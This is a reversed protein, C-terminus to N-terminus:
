RGGIIEYIRKMDVSQRVIRALESYQREKFERYSGIGSQLPPLGKQQRINNLIGRTFQINDFIGHIYTGIVNGQDNVAGDTIYQRGRQRTKIYSFPEVGEMRSTQGMHIEYGQVSHGELEKFLSRNQAIIAEVQTTIKQTAITTVVDLLGLGEIYETGGEVHEPDKIERGLMQYGGCIGFIYKDMHNLKLIEDELGSERLYKMDEITNKSGPIILLDPNHPIEGPNVYRFSVDPQTEFVTFDTFNSMYPLRIVEVKLCGERNGEKRFRETMSDEDDIKIDCYPIIGLVPVKIMEELKEIGPKLINIDGRFKNVIIGKVRKREKHDLLMVTGLLSAFVGGRDIDGILIVPSDAIEAMKMNVIDKDKLNIEAPSGAGELVAMDYGRTVEEFTERVIRLLEPKFEYYEMASMNKYVKGRIIVQSRNNSTPKLLIPNMLVSPKLGAAEAQVVQARGMELGEETIYSNLAMNQSKFPVVKYGDEMFIRCFATAIVSKGVSSATGQFM